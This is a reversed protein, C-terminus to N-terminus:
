GGIRIRFYAVCTMAGDGQLWEEVSSPYVIKTNSDYKYISFGMFNNMAYCAGHLYQTTANPSNMSQTFHFDCIGEYRFSDANFPFPLNTIYFPDKPKNAAITLKGYLDFITGSTYKYATYRVDSSQASYGSPIKPTIKGTEISPMTQTWGLWVNGNGDYGRCYIVGNFDIIKQVFYLKGSNYVQGVSPEITMIFARKTPCNILSPAESNSPIYYQGIGTITNLDTGVPIRKVNLNVQSGDANGRWFIDYANKSIIKGAGSSGIKFEDSTTGALNSYIM